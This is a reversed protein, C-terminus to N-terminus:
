KGCLNRAEGFCGGAEQQVRNYYNDLYSIQKAPKTFKIGRFYNKRLKRRTAPASFFRSTFGRTRTRIGYITKSRVSNRSIQTYGDTTITTIILILVLAPKLFFETMKGM